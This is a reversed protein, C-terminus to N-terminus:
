SHARAITAAITITWTLVDTSPPTITLNLGTTATDAATTVTFATGLAVPTGAVWTTTAAGTNALVGIPLTWVGYNAPTTYDAMTISISMNAAITGSPNGIEFSNLGFVNYNAVTGTGDATARFPTTSSTKQTWIQTTQQNGGVFGNNDNALTWSNILPSGGAQGVVFSQKASVNHTVGIAGADPNACTIAGGVIVSSACGSNITNNSGGILDNTAASNVANPTADQGSPGAVVTNNAGSTGFPVFLNGAHSNSFRNYAPTSSADYALEATASANGDGIVGLTTGTL